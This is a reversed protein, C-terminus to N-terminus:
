SSADKDGRNKNLYEIGFKKMEEYNQHNKYYEDLIGFRYHDLEFNCQDHCKSCTDHESSLEDTYIKDGEKYNIIKRRHICIPKYKCSKMM